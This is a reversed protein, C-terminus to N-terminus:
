KAEFRAHELYVRGTEDEIFANPYPTGLCRIKDYLARATINSLDLKDIRSMDPTRRPVQMDPVVAPWQHWTIDPFDYLFSQFLVISTDRMRTLIEDTDGELSMGVQHSWVRPSLEPYGVRVIRHKTRTLGDLVQNQLPTGPSYRDSEAPHETVILPCAAVTVESPPQSCGCMLVVDPLQSDPLHSMRKTRAVAADFHDNHVQTFKDISPHSRIADAVQQAWPRYSVFWVNLM